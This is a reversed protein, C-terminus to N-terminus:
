IDHICADTFVKTAFDGKYWVETDEVMVQWSIEWYFRAQIVAFVEIMYVGEDQPDFPCYRVYFPDVQDCHPYFTDNSVDPARVTLVASDWGEGFHDSMWILLCSRNNFRSLMHIDRPENNNGNGVTYVITGGWVGPNSINTRASISDNSAHPVLRQVQSWGNGFTKFVYSVATEPGMFTTILTNEKMLLKTGFINESTSDNVIFLQQQLSWQNTSDFGRYIYVSRENPMTGNSVRLVGFAAVNDHVAM